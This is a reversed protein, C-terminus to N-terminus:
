GWDVERGLLEKFKSVYYEAADAILKSGDEYNVLDEVLRRALELARSYDKVRYWRGNYVTVADELLFSVRGRPSDAEVDEGGDFGLEYMLAWLLSVGNVVEKYKKEVTWSGKRALERLAKRRASKGLRDLHPEILSGEFISRPM